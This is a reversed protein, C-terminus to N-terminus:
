MNLHNLKKVTEAIFGDNLIIKSHVLSGFFKRYFILNGKENLYDFKLKISFRRIAAHDIINKYNTAAIFIGRFNEMGTLLENVQSLEWSRQANERTFLFSDVEDLFLISQEREAEEFANRINNETEGIYPSILDSARKLLVRRKLTRGLYHTFETKGTGPPGYFFINLNSEETGQQWAENFSKITGLTKQLNGQVNLGNVSYIQQSKSRKKKTARKGALLSQYSNLIQEIKEYAIEERDKAQYLAALNQVAKDIGGANIEFDRALENIYNRSILNQIGYEKIKYQWLKQRQQLNMKDFKIAYNFRRRTSEDMANVYNTIWITYTRSEDLLSNIQGKDATNRFIFFDSISNLM